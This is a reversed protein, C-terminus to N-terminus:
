LVSCPAQDVDLSIIRNARVYQHSIFYIDVVLIFKAVVEMGADFASPFSSGNLFAIIGPM